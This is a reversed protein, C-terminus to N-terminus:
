IIEKERFRKIEEASYGGIERLVEETHEGLEPAASRPGASAESFHVPYGPFQVKGFVPHNFDVIYKNETVQPDDKLEIPSNVPSSLFGHRGLIDHWEERTRTAFVGDLIAVLERSNEIRKEHSDFRPDQELDPREITRCFEDWLGPELTPLTFCIWNGGKCQYWNRLPDTDTRSQRPAENTLDAVLVNFYQLGLASGLISVQVQQGIGSRDRMVLASLVAHSGWIATIQDIVAFVVTLPPMDPEGISLMLGSRAQGQFDFGGRWSDPGNPGFMTVSAYILRPNIEHLIPYGMKMKDVTEQRINTLFVDSKAALRYAIERGEDKSLDLTISRKNRNAGEFFLNKGKFDFYSKGFRTRARLPDGVKPQEIKIVEAGLDGLIAPGGPGAHYIAWELIRIGQLPQLM